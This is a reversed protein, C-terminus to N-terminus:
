RGFREQRAQYRQRSTMNEEDDQEEPLEASLLIMAFGDRQPHIQESIAVGPTDVWVDSECEGMRDKVTAADHFRSGKPVPKGRVATIFPFNRGTYSRLVVGNRTMVVALPDGHHQVYSRAAAEKSVGFKEAVTLIDNFDPNRFGKLLTRLRPPPMLVLAAFSNAEAEMRVYRDQAKTDWKLMDAKNCLFKGPIAPSHSSILFHGLEHGITFRRKAPGANKNVLIIGETREPTTLLGGEYGDTNLEAIEIIDLARALEEIPTIMPLDPEAAIIKAVLAAPSGAMDLDMRSIKM